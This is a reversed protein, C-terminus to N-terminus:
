TEKSLFQVFIIIFKHPHNVCVCIYYMKLCIHQHINMSTYIHKSIYEGYFMKGDEKKILHKAFKVEDIM